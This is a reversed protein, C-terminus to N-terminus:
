VEREFNFGKGLFQSYPPYIQGDRITKEIADWFKYKNSYNDIIKPYLKFRYIHNNGKIYWDSTLMLYDIDCLYATGKVLLFRSKASLKKVKEDERIYEKLKLKCNLNTFYYNHKSLFKIEQVFEQDSFDLTNEDLHTERFYILVPRM